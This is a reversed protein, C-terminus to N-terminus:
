LWGTIGLGAAIVHDVTSDGPFVFGLYSLQPGLSLARSVRFDLGVIADYTFAHHALPRLPDDGARYSYGGHLSLSPEVSAAVGGRVGM